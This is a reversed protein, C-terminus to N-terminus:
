IFISMITKGNQRNRVKNVAQVARTPITTGARATSKYLSCLVGCRKNSFYFLFNLQMKQLLTYLLMQKSFVVLFNSLSSHSAVGHIDATFNLMQAHLLPQREPFKGAPALKGLAKQGLELSIQGGRRDYREAVHELCETRIQGIKEALLFVVLGNKREM